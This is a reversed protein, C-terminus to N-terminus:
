FCQNHACLLVRYPPELSYGCYYTKCCIYFESGVGTSVGLQYHHSFGNTLYPNILWPSFGCFGKIKKKMLMCIHDLLIVKLLINNPKKAEAENKDMEISLPEKTEMAMAEAGQSASSNNRKKTSVPVPMEEMDDDQSLLSKLLVNEKSTSKKESDTVQDGDDNSTSQPKEPPSQGPGPQPSQHMSDAPSMELAHRSDHRSNHRSRPKKGVSGTAAPPSNQTLLQCLKGTKNLKKDGNLADLGTTNM